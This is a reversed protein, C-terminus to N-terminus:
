VTVSWASVWASGAYFYETTGGSSPRFLVREGPRAAWSPLSTVVMTQVKGYNIIDRVEDKFANLEYEQFFYDNIKVM